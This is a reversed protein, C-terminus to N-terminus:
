CLMEANPIAAHQSAAQSFDIERNLNRELFPGSCARFGGRTAVYVIAM